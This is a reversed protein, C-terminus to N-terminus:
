EDTGGMAKPRIPGRFDVVQWSARGTDPLRHRKLTLKTFFSNRKGAEEWIVAYVQKVVDSEDERSRSETDYYRAQAKAGLALLSRIEPRRLYGRLDQRPDSGPAYHDRLREDLPVRTQPAQTLQHSKLAEGQRLFEFWQDAAQRAERDILQGYTFWDSMAAAGVLVSLALGILAAKRGILAPADRAIRRLAVACLLIGALPVTWMLPDIFALPALLGVILGAVSLGSLARYGIVEADQPESLPSEQIEAESM